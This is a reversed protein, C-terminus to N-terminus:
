VKKPLFDLKKNQQPYYFGGAINTITIEVECLLAAQGAVRQVWACSYYM